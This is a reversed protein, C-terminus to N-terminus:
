VVFCSGATLSRLVIGVEGVFDAVRGPVARAVELRSTGVLRARGLFDLCLRRRWRWSGVGGSLCMRRM